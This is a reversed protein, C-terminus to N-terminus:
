CTWSLDCLNLGPFKELVVNATVYTLSPNSASYLTPTRVPAAGEAKAPTPNGITIGGSGGLNTTQGQANTTIGTEGDIKTAGNDEV